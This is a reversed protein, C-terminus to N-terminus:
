FTYRLTLVEWGFYFHDEHPSDDFVGTPMVNFHMLTGLALNPNFRYELGTGIDLLFVTDDISPGFRVDRDFHTFGVGMRISPELPALQEDLQGLDFRYRAFATPSVITKHDDLGVQVNAGLSFQPAIEYDGEVGFMFTTPSSTFGIGTRVSFPSASSHSKSSSAQHEQGYDTTMESPYDRDRTQAAVPAAILAAMACVRTLSIGM